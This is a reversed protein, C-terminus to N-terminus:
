PIRVGSRGSEADPHEALRCVKAEIAAPWPYNGVIVAELVHRNKQRKLHREAQRASTRDGFSVLSVREWPGKGRTAAVANANHQALRRDPDGASGLYLRGSKESRLIYVYGQV